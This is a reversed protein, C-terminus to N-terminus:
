LFFSSVFGETRLAVFVACRILSGIKALGAHTRWSDGGNQRVGWIVIIARPTCIDFRRPQQLQPRGGGRRM